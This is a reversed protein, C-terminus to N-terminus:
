WLFVVNSYDSLDKKMNIEIVSEFIMNRNALGAGVKSILFINEPHSVMEQKLLRIERKYVKIYEYVTYFSYSNNNPYKKTIFPCTNPEDRLIAAGGHGEHLLNDGFVFICNRNDRLFQRTIIEPVKM